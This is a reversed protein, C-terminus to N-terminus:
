QNKILGERFFTKQLKHFLHLLWNKLKSKKEGRSIDFGITKEKM